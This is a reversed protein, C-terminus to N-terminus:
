AHSTARSEEGGEQVRESVVGLLHIIELLRLQNHVGTPPWSFTHCVNTASTAGRGWAVTRVKEFTNWVGPSVCYLATVSNNQKHGRAVSEIFGAQKCGLDATREM